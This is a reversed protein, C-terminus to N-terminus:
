TKWHLDIFGQPLDLEHAYALDLGIFRVGLFHRVWDDGELLIKRWPGDAVVKGENVVIIRDAFRVAIEVNTTAIMLAVDPSTGGLDKIM